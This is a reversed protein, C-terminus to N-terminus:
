SLNDCYKYDKPLPRQTGIKLLIKVVVSKVGILLQKRDFYIGADTNRLRLIHVIQPGMKILDQIM